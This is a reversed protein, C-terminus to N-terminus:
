QAKVEARGKKAKPVQHEFAVPPEQPNKTFVVIDDLYIICWMLQLERLYIQM